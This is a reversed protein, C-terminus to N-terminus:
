ERDRSRPKNDIRGCAVALLDRIRVLKHGNRRIDRVCDAGPLSYYTGQAPQLRRPIDGQEARRAIEVLMGRAVVCGRLYLGCASDRKQLPVAEQAIIDGTDFQEDMFHATIGIEKEGNALAWMYPSMGRYNPLMGFHCNVIGLTPLNLLPPKLKQYVNVAFILDPGIDRLRELCPASNADAFTAVPLGLQAAHALPSFLRRRGPIMRTLKDLLRTYAATGVKYCFGRWGSRRLVNLLMAGTSKGKIMGRAEIVIGIQSQFARLLGSLILYSFYSNSTIVAYKM